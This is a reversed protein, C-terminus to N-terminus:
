GKVAGLMIGKEFYRNMFPYVVLIPIVSMMSVTYQTVKTNMMKEVADKMQSASVSGTSALTGLNSSQQLYVYLRHQLTLMKPNNSMYILSDQFSNWHGVAGFIAITALIPKSLPWIIKRFVTIHSAGDIFASEELEAPISEIYTKVLIINYPAVIGPIIYVLYNNNLGLMVMNMYGPILGANFYMTIVLFRYCLSRHWMEQKTVLYGVFASALVMLATGIITRTTTVIFANGLDNVNRLALYNDINIGVPYFNVRGLSVEKNNSITNIFLYYFPYICTITFLTFVTYNIINFIVDGPTVRYMNKHKKYYAKERKADLKEQATKAM